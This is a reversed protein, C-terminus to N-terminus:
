PAPVPMEVLTPWARPTVTGISELCTLWAGFHPCTRRLAPLGIRKLAFPSVARKGGEYEPIKKIIRKSPATEPGEDIHEPTKAEKVMAALEAAESSREPYFEALQVADALVLAEFEHLQVYPLFRRDDISKGMAAELCHVKAFPDQLKAAESRGPSNGPLAYLDTMTTVRVHAGRETKLWKTVDSEALEWNNLGGRGGKHRKRFAGFRSAVFSCKEAGAHFWHQLLHPGLMSNAFEEEAHGEVCFIVRVM